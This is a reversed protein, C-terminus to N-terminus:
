WDWDFGSEHKGHGPMHEQYEEWHRKGQGRGRFGRRGEDMDRDRHQPGRGWYGPEDDGRAFRKRVEKRRGKKHSAEDCFYRGRRDIGRGRFRKGGSRMGERGFGEGRGRGFYEGRGRRGERERLQKPRRKGGSLEGRLGKRDKELGERGKRLQGSRGQGEGKQAKQKRRRQNMNRLLQGMKESDNEQYAKTLATLWKDFGQQRPRLGKQKAQGKQAQKQKQGAEPRAKRGQAFLNGAGALLAVALIGLMAKKLM